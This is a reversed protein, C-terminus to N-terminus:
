KAYLNSSERLSIQGEIMRRLDGTVKACREEGPTNGLVKFLSQARTYCDLAHESRGQRQLAEGYYCLSYALHIMCGMGGDLWRLADEFLGNGEEVNGNQCLAAGRVMLTVGKVPTKVTGPFNSAVKWAKESFELASRMDNRNLAVLAMVTDAMCGMYASDSEMAEDLALKANRLADAGERLDLNVFTRFIHSWCMSVRDGIQSALHHVSDFALLAERGRGQHYLVESLLRNIELDQEIDKSGEYMSRARDLTELARPMDGQSLHIWAHYCLQQGERSRDGARRFCEEAKSCLEDAKPFDGTWLRLNTRLGALEGEEFANIRPCREAEDLYRLCNVSSGKGLRTPSWCEAIKRLVRACRVDEGGLGMFGEYDRLGEQYNALYVQCDGMGEMAQLREVIFDENGETLELVRRFNPVAEFIAKRELWEMGVSLSYRVCKDREGSYQHHLAIEGDLRLSKPEAELIRAVERHIENRRAESISEYIVRQLNEHAFTVKGDGVRVMAHSRDAEELVELLDMQRMNMLSALVKPEFSLGIVSAAELVRKTTKPLREVRRMVVDKVTSPVGVQEGAFSWVGKESTLQGHGLLNHVCEITFLPNGEGERMVEELVKKHVRGGLLKNLLEEIEVESLEGLPIETILSERRLSRLSEFLPHQLGETVEFSIDEPRYTGVILSRQCGINRALFHLVQISASDAWHLDELVMVAPREQARRYLADRVEFMIEGTPSKAFLEENMQDRLAERFPLYPSPANPLCRGVTYDCGTLTALRGLEETMKTKGIGAEGSILILGGHGRIAKSLGAQIAEKEKVRGVM